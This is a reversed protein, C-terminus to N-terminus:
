VVYVSVYERSDTYMSRTKMGILSFRTGDFIDLVMQRSYWTLMCTYKKVNRM